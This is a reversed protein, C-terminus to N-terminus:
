YFLLTLRNTVNGLPQGFKVYGVFGQMRITVGILASTAPITFPQQGPTVGSALVGFPAGILVYGFPDLFSVGAFPTYLLTWASGSLGTVNFTVKTGVQPAGTMTLRVACHEDAGMDIAAGNGKLGDLNGDLRRSDDDFDVVFPKALATSDGTDVCPSLATLHFDSVGAFLPDKSISSAGPKFGSFNGGTNNWVNNHNETPVSGGVLIGGTAKASNGVVINSLIKGAAAGAYDIGGGSQYTATACVNNVITNNLINAVGSSDVRIGAGYNWTGSKCVNGAIVNGVVHTVATSRIYLGGGHGRSGSQNQNALIQNNVIDAAAGSDVYIGAGYNWSGNRLINNSIVNHEILPRASGTVHIGGGYNWSTGIGGNGTIVNRRITPSSTMYIGAGHNRSTKMVGNTITFGELVTARTLGSGFTIVRGLQGGDITTVSPGAVAVLRIGDVSPWTLNEPYTGPAVMVTDGSKAAALALGITKYHSPVYINGATASGAAIVLTAVIALLMRM